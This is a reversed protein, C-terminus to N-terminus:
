ENWVLYQEGVEVNTKIKLSFHSGHKSINPVRVERVKSGKVSYERLCLPM